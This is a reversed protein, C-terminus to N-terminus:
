LESYKFTLSLICNNRLHYRVLPHKQIFEITHFMTMGVSVGPTLTLTDLPLESKLAKLKPEFVISVSSIYLSM